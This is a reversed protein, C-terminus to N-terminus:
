KFRVEATLHSRIFFLKCDKGVTALFKGNPSYALAVVSGDHPKLTQARRLTGEGGGEGESGNGEGRPDRVMVRVVGDSFGVVVTHGAPDVHDNAWELCQASCPFRIMEAPRKTLFDWIRVTGDVGCTAALQELFSTDLGTIAGAHFAALKQPSPASSDLSEVAAAPKPTPVQWLAGRGDIVLFHDSAPDGRSGGRELCRTAVGEGIFLERVPAVECCMSDDEADATDVDAFLWWRIYGDAGATLVEMDTRDLSVHLIPSDHCANKGPRVIRCKIFQGEWVLLSGSEAGSIVKGDPMHCFCDIDSMEIKGFKGIDGQLKLGTFTSAVRWFRIHGTGSTTLRGEDDPSFSVQQLHIIWDANKKYKSSISSNENVFIIDLRGFFVPINQYRTDPM